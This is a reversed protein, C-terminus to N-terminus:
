RNRFRRTSRVPDNGCLFNEVDEREEGCDLANDGDAEKDRNRQDADSAVSIHLLPGQAAQNAAALVVMQQYVKM